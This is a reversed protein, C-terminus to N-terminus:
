IKKRINELLTREEQLLAMRPRMEAEPLIHLRNERLTLETIRAYVHDNLWAREEPLLEIQVGSILSTPKTAAM